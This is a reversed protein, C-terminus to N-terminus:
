NSWAGACSPPPMPTLLTSSPVFTASSRGLDKETYVRYNGQTRRPRPLLGMSEYYLVTSRALHCARALKTVTLPM